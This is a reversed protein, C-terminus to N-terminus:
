ANLCGWGLGEGDLPLPDYSHQMPSNLARAGWLKLVDFFLYEGEGTKRKISSQM